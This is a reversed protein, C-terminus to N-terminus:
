KRTEIERYDRTFQKLKQIVFEVLAIQLEMQIFKVQLYVAIDLQVYEIITM